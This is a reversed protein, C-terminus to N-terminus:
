ETLNYEGVSRRVRQILRINSILLPIIPARAGALRRFSSSSIRGITNSMNFWNEGGIPLYGNSVEKSLSYYVRM